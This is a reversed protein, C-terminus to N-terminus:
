YEDTSNILTASIMEADSMSYLWKFSLTQKVLGNNDQVKGFDTLIVKALDITLWPNVWGGLDVDEDIIEIRMAEQTWDTYKDVFTENERLLEISGTISFFTNCFDDPEVDGLVDDDELNKQISLNISKVKTYSAGDLWDLDSAFKAKVHKWIFSTEPSFSPTLSSDEDSKAKFASSIKVYDWLSANLDLSQIMALAFSKDQVDDAVWLTLSQHQNTEAVSFVHTYPDSWTTDVSWLLSLLLYWLSESYMNTELTWESRKKSVQWDFSDEIVGIASEDIVKEARPNYDFSAKPIRQSIAVATWRSAEKWFGVTIKRWIYKVMTRKKCIFHTKHIWYVNFLAYKLGTNNNQSMKVSSYTKSKRKYVNFPEKM